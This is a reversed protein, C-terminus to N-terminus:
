LVSHLITRIDNLAKKYRANDGIVAQLQVGLDGVAAPKEVVKFPDFPEFPNVELPIETLTEVLPKGSAPHGIRTGYLFGRDKNINAVRNIANMKRGGLYANSLVGSAQIKTGAWGEAVLAAMLETTNFTEQPEYVKKIIAAVEKTANSQM